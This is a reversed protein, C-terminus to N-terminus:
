ECGEDEMWVELYLLRPTVDSLSSLLLLLHNGHDLRVSRTGRYHLPGRRHRNLEHKLLKLPSTLRLRSHKRSSQKLSVCVCVREQVCELETVLTSCNSFDLHQTESKYMQEPPFNM